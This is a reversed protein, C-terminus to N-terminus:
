NIPFLHRVVIIVGSVVSVELPVSQVLTLKCLGGIGRPQATCAQSSRCLNILSIHGLMPQALECDRARSCPCSAEAALTSRSANTASEGRFTSTQIAVIQM